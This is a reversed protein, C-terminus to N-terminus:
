APKTMDSLRAIEQSSLGTYKMIMDPGLGDALMKRAADRNRQEADETRRREKETEQEADEARQREKETEQEADQAREEGTEILRGKHDRWRLWQDRIGEFCGEWLTV